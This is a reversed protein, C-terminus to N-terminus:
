GAGEGPTGPSPSIQQAASDTMCGVGPPPEKNQIAGVMRVVQSMAAVDHVRVVDAGNAIGWATTAATGFIRRQDQEGTLEAVFKKRSTGLVLPRGISKFEELRRLIELNHETTKGFGIGPDILLRASDIGSQVAAAIRETLFDRVQSIVERYRPALQMTAPQGQMHMLVAPAGRKALLPFMAPDDRGASIDNVIQVGEDLAAEAVRALTTDISCITNCRGVVAKLVPLLRGLQEEASLRKAGPRTSEGGIDIWDAGDAAMSEARAVAADLQNFQGGDSFSDPTLNLIGMVLTPRRPDLLWRNFSEADM